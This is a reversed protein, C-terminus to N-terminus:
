CTPLMCGAVPGGGASVVAVEPRRSAQRERAGGRLQLCGEHLAGYGQMRGASLQGGYTHAPLERDRAIRSGSLPNLEANCPGNVALCGLQERATGYLEMHRRCNLALWNAASCAQAALLDSIEDMPEVDSSPAGAPVEMMRALHSAPADDQQSSIPVTGGLMQMARDAVARSASIVPGLLGGSGFGTGCDAAGPSASVMATTRATIASAPSTGASRSPMAVRPSVGTASTSAANCIRSIGIGFLIASKEFYRMLWYLTSQQARGDLRRLGSRRQEDRVAVVARVAHVWRGAFTAVASSWQRRPRHRPAAPHEGKGDVIARRVRRVRVDGRGIGDGDDFELFM